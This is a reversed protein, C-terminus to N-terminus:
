QVCEGVYIEYSDILMYPTKELARARFVMSGDPTAFVLDAGTAADFASTLVLGPIPGSKASVTEADTDVTLTGAAEFGYFDDPHQSLGTPELRWASTAHCTLVEAHIGSAAFSALTFALISPFIKGAFFQTTMRAAAGSGSEPHGLISTHTTSFSEPLPAASACESENLLMESGGPNSGVVPFMNSKDM